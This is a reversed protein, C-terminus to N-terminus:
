RERFTRIAQSLFTMSRTEGAGIAIEGMLETERATFERATKDALDVLEQARRRLLMGAETLVIHHQSRRFLKVGLEEELQMLQRSLTPQTLHRLAAALFQEPRECLAATGESADPRYGLALSLLRAACDQAHAMAKARVAFARPAGQRLYSCAAEALFPIQMTQAVPGWYGQPISFFHRGRSDCRHRVASLRETRDTM